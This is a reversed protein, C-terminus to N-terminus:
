SSRLDKPLFMKISRIRELESIQIKLDKHYNELYINNMTKLDAIEKLIEEHLLLENKFNVIETEETHYGSRFILNLDIKYRRNIEDKIQSINYDEVNIENIFATEEEIIKLIEDDADNRNKILDSASKEFELLSKLLLKKSHLHTSLDDFFRKVDDRM